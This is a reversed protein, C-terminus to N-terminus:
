PVSVTDRKASALVEPEEAELMDPSVPVAAIATPKAEIVSVEKAVSSEKTTTSPIKVATAKISAPPPLTGTVVQSGDDFLVYSALFAGGVLGFVLGSGFALWFKM